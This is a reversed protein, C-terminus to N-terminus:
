DWWWQNEGLGVVDGSVQSQVQMITGNTDQRVRDSNLAIGPQMAVGGAIPFMRTNGRRVLNAVPAVYNPSNMVKTQLQTEDGFTEMAWGAKGYLDFKQIFAAAISLDMVNRLEAWLPNTAALKDYNKTFSDCYARSAANMRGKGQREGARNVSEDEGVLKVANGSLEIANMDQSITVCDYNPQFFWRLLSNTGGRSPDAKQIYTTLPVTPMELGLGILKMRYDAEIMVRAFNTQDSVGNITIVQLGLAERFIQMIQADPLQGNAQQIRTQAQQLRVIGEQTPDISCSILRTQQNDPGFTRLAVVLDQLQLTSKGTELGVVHNSSTRFFGEAPGAIVIDNSDPLYFVHSVGTLGALFQMEEPIVQGAQRLKKYEQELRNLSVFRLKSPTQLDRNLGARAAEFRMRDLRGTPDIMSRSSLIGNADIEVGGFQPQDDGGGNGGGQAHVLGSGIAFLSITLALALHRFIGLVMGTRWDTEQFVRGLRVSNLKLQMDFNELRGPYTRM